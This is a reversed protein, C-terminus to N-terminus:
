IFRQPKLQEVDPLSSDFQEGIEDGISYFFDNFYNAMSEFSISPGSETHVNAHQHYSKLGNQM